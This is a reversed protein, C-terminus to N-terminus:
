AHAGGTELAAHLLIAAMRDSIPVTADREIEDLRSILEGRDDDSLRGTLVKDLLVDLKPDNDRTTM